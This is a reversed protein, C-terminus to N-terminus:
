SRTLSRPSSHRFDYKPIIYHPGLHFTYLVFIRSFNGRPHSKNEVRKSHPKIDEGSTELTNEAYFLNKKTLFEDFYFVFRFEPLKTALSVASTELTTKIKEM